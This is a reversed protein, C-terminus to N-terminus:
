SCPTRSSNWYCRWVSWRFRHRMNGEFPLVCTLDPVRFMGSFLGSREYLRYMMVTYLALMLRIGNGERVIQVIGEAMM